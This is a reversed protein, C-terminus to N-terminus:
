RGPEPDAPVNALPQWYRSDDEGARCLDIQIRYRDPRYLAQLHEVGQGEKDYVIRTLQILPTGVAVDLERAVAHTALTASVVQSAHDIHVGSRELLAFLPTTALDAEDYHTAIHEPVHTTLYSFPKDDTMRVRVSRQVREHPPLGLEERISESPRCYAFEILRVRSDKSMRVMNPLLNSVSATMVTAGLPQERVVTGVGPRREVLGAEALAEMARRVTVRSVGHLEALKLEGPLKAGPSLRGNVVEDKLLLFLQHSKSGNLGSQSLTTAM